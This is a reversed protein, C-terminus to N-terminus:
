PSRRPRFAHSCSAREIARSKYDNVSSLHLRSRFVRSERRQHPVTPPPYPPRTPVIPTDNAIRIPRIAPVDPLGTHRRRRSAARGPDAIQRRPWNWHYRDVEVHSSRAPDRGDFADSQEEHLPVSAQDSVDIFARQRARRVLRRNGVKQRPQISAKLRRHGGRVRASTEDGCSRGYQGDNRSARDEARDRPAVDLSMV